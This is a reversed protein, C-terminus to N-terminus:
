QVARVEPGFVLCTGPLQSIIADSRPCHSVRRARPGDNPIPFMEPAAPYGDMM